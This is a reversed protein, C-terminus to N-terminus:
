VCMQVRTINNCVFLSCVEEKIAGRHNEIERSRNIQGDGSLELDGKIAKLNPDKQVWAGKTILTLARIEM